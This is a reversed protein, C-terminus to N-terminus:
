RPTGNVELSLIKGVQETAYRLKLDYSAAYETYVSFEVSSNVQSLGSVYGIGTNGDQAQVIASDAGGTTKASEAEYTWTAADTVTIYDLNVNGTDGSDYKYTIVNSGEKLFVNDYRDAWKNWGKLGFFNAQKIRTGNVYMTLTRDKGTGAGYALKVSYSGAHPANVTFSIAANPESFGSVFGSGSYGTHNQAIGTGGSLVAGEAEYLVSKKAIIADLGLASKGSLRVINSGDNLRINHVTKLDFNLKNEPGANSPFVLATPAEQNVGLTM